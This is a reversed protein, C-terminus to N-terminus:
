EYFSYFFIFYIRKMLINKHCGLNTKDEVNTPFLDAYIESFRKEHEKQNQQSFQNHADFPIRLLKKELYNNNSDIHKLTVLKM